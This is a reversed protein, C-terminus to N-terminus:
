NNLLYWADKTPAQYICSFCNDARHGGCNVQLHSNENGISPLTTLALQGSNYDGEGLNLVGAGIEPAKGTLFCIICLPSTRPLHVHLHTDPDPDAHSSASLMSVLLLYLNM